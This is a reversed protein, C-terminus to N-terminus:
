VRYRESHRPTRELYSIRQNIPELWLTLIVPLMLQYIRSLYILRHYQRRIIPTVWLWVSSLLPILNSAFVADLHKLLDRNFFCRESLCRTAGSSVLLWSMGHEHKTDIVLRHIPKYYGHISQRNSHLPVAIEIISPIERLTSTNAWSLLYAPQYTRAMLYPHRPADASLHAFSLDIPSISASHDACGCGFLLPDSKIRLCCRSTHSSLSSVFYFYSIVREFMRSTVVIWARAEHRDGIQSDAQVTVIYPNVIPITSCDRQYEHNLHLDNDWYCWHIRQSTLLRRRPISLFPCCILLYHQHLHCNDHWVFSHYTVAGHFVIKETAGIPHKVQWCGGDSRHQLPSQTVQWLMLPHQHADLPARWDNNPTPLLLRDIRPNLRQSQLWLCYLASLLTARTYWYIGIKIGFSAASELDLAISSLFIMPPGHHHTSNRCDLTAFAHDLHNSLCSCIRHPSCPRWPIENEREFRSWSTDPHRPNCLSYEGRRIFVLKPILSDALSVLNSASIAICM